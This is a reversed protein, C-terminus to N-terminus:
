LDVFRVLTAFSGESTAIAPVSGVKFLNEVIMPRLARAIRFETRVQARVILYLTSKELLMEVLLAGQLLHFTLIGM